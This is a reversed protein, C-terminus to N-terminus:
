KNLDPIVQGDDRQILLKLVKEDISKALARVSGDALAAMCAGNEFRFHKMVDQKPDFEIEDPKTWPTGEAAEFVLLTNSTGDTFQKITAGQIMDFAAGGGVFVRYHTEAAKPTGYPLTYVAVRTEALKKNHESDWPEDLKFKKYLNDQEIYPLIAVRWSLLPKGKKDVIAAPPFVGNKAEYNHLALAIQKLNNSSKQRAAAARPKLLLEAVPKLLTIDAKLAVSATTVTQDRKAKTGAVVKQLETLAPLLPKLDDTPKGDKVVDTLADDAVKMLLNFAREAEVAKDENEGVFRADLRLDKDLTARLVIAKSKLLPLFPQLEPPANAFIEAPLTAPDLGLVLATKGDAAAKLADAMPGDKAVAGKKFDEILTEHTVTFQRDSTFHVVFKTGGLKLVDGKPMEGKGRFGKLITDKDYPKKTVVQLVFLEEDGPGQPMKPFHFTITEIDDPKLAVEREVQTLLETLDKAYAKRLDALAQHSWVDGARLHIVLAADAPVREIPQLGAPAAAADPSTSRDLCAFVALLGVLGAMYFAQRLSLRM